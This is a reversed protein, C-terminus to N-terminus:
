VEEERNRNGNREGIKIFGYYGEPKVPLGIYLAYHEESCFSRPGVALDEVVFVSPKEDCASCIVTAVENKEKVEKRRRKIYDKFQEDTTITGDEIGQEFETIFDPEDFEGKKGKKAQEQLWMKKAYRRDQPNTYQSLYREMEESM